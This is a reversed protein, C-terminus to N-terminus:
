WIGLLVNADTFKGEHVVSELPERLIERINEDGVTELTQLRRNADRRFRQQLVFPHKCTGVGLHIYFCRNTERASACAEVLSQNPVLEERLFNTFFVGFDRRICWLANEAFKLQFPQSEGPTPLIRRGLTFRPGLSDRLARIIDVAGDDCDFDGSLGSLLTPRLV